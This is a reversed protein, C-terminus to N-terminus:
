NNGGKAQANTYISMDQKLWSDASKWGGYAKVYYTPILNVLSDHSNDNEVRFGVVIRSIQSQELGHNVLRHLLQDTSELTVTRGDFPIPIQFNTSNFNMMISENSFTTYIQSDGDNLFVPSGEIYNIYSVSNKNADFFRLDQEMLGVRHVYFISDLLRSTTSPITEKEYHTYLYTHDNQNGSRPVQLHTYYNLSYTTRGKKNTRSSVGSTGLLRSVFYSDSQHNILYSYVKWKNKNSYFPTYGAELRVFHVPTKSHANQAYQRLRNFNAGKISLRYIRDTKDNGLYLTKNSDTIFVRTFERNDKKETVSTFLNFTIEDPYALQIYNENNLMKKYRNESAPLTVIRKVTLKKLEKSFEFPLNKKSDYLQYLQGNRFGYSSTPLYLDYLSKDNRSKTQQRTYSSRSSQNIRDCRQDNTMIFIWLAISIAIALFTGIMLFVDGLKSKFKM